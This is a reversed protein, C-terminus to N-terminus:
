SRLDDIVTRAAALQARDSTIGFVNSSNTGTLTLPLGSQITTV